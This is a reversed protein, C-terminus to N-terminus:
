TLCDYICSRHNFTGPLADPSASALEGPAGAPLGALAALAHLRLAATPQLLSPLQQGPQQRQRQRHPASPPRGAAHAPADGAPLPGACQLVRQGRLERCVGPLCPTLSSTQDIYLCGKVDSLMAFTYPDSHGEAYVTLSHPM